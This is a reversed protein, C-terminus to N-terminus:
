QRGEHYDRVFAGSGECNFVTYIGRLWREACERLEKSTSIIAPKRVSDSM